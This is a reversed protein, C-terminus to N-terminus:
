LTAIPEPTTEPGQPATPFIEKILSVIRYPNYNGFKEAPVPQSLPNSPPNFAIHQLHKFRQGALHHPPLSKANKGTQFFSTKRHAAAHTLCQSSQM